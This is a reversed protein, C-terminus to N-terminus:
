YSSSSSPSFGKLPKASSQSVSAPASVNGELGKDPHSVPTFGTHPHPSQASWAQCTVGLITITTPGRYTAGNGVKCDSASVPVFPHLLSDIDDVGTRHARLIWVERSRTRALTPKSQSPLALPVPQVPGPLEPASKYTATSGASELTWQTAGRRATAM